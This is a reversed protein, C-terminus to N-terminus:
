PDVDQRQQVIAEALERTMAPLEMLAAVSAQNPNLAIASLGEPDYFCFQVVPEWGTLQGVSIGLGAALDELCHFQVGSRSLQTLSRAQHISLGPLRLWDEVSAQNADIRVGLDAALSVESLTDFRLGPNQQLRLRLQERLAQRQLRPGASGLKQATQAQALWTSLWERFTM